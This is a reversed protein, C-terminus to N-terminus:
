YWGDDRDEYYDDDYDPYYDDDYRGGGKSAMVDVDNTLKQLAQANANLQGFLETEGGAKARDALHGIYSDMPMTPSIPVIKGGLVQGYQEGNAQVPGFGYKMYLDAREFNGMQAGYPMNKVVAGEELRPIIDQWGREAERAIRMAERRGTESNAGYSGDVDWSLDYVARPPHAVLQELTGINAPTKSLDEPIFDALNVAHPDAWLEIKKSSNRVTRNEKIYDPFDEPVPQGASKMSAERLLKLSDQLQQPISTLPEAALRAGAFRRARLSM